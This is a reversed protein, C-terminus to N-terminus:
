AGPALRGVAEALKRGLAECEALTGPAVEGSVGVSEAVKELKFWKLAQDLVGLVVTPPGGASAFTVAPKGTVKGQSPYFTRDLFDKLGGAMYGFYDPSGLALGDCALLDDLTAEVGTRLVVDTDAVSSAGKAVAEAMQKTKGGLSHYVVLINAV